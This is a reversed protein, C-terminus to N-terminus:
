PQQATASGATLLMAPFAVALTAVFRGRTTM